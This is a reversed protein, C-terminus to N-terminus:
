PMNGLGGSYWKVAGQVLWVLLQEQSHKTLLKKRVNSDRLRHRPDLPNYPCNADGPTTYINNFPIVQIRRLMAPDDVNIAPKHNCILISLMTPQFTECDKYLSRSTISSEGTIIKITEINLEDKPEAEEKVCIRAGRM